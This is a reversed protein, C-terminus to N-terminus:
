FLCSIIINYLFDRLDTWDLNPWNYPLRLIPWLIDVMKVGYILTFHKTFLIDCLLLIIDLSCREPPDVQCM